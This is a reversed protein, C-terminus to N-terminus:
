SLLKELYKTLKKTLLLKLKEAKEIENLNELEIIEKLIVYNELWFLSKELYKAKEKPDKEKKAAEKWEIYNEKCTELM